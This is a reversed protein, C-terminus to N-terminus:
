GGPEQWAASSAFIADKIDTVSARLESDESLIGNIKGVGHIVTAHDRGGLLRGIDTPSMELENMLLYMAIQRALSIKRIRTKSLLQKEPLSFHNCVGRIISQANPLDIAASSLVDWLIEHAYDLTISVDSLQSYAIVKNLCGELDRINRQVRKAIFDIVTDPIRVDQNIAKDTLIAVRTEYDPPQIDVVLGGSFRSLLRKELLGMEGPPKDSTIVIQKGANHLENFTHFFGEQTQEKGMLFQIDDILLVDVTRYRDRFEETSRNRIANLFENTFQESSAYRVTLGDETCLKGLSYMLHTKGLGVGSYIFLPNYDRGPAEAVAIAASYAMINSPGTIFSKFSYKPNPGFGTSAKSGTDSRAQSSDSIDQVTRRTAQNHNNVDVETEDSVVMQIDLWKGTVEHLANQIDSYKKRELWAITFPSPLSMVFSNETMRTGHSGSLWTQYNRRDMNIELRGLVARWIESANMVPDLM